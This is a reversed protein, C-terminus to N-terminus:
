CRVLGRGESELFKLSFGNKILLLKTAVLLSPFLGM